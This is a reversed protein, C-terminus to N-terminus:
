DVMTSDNEIVKQQQAILQALKYSHEWNKEAVQTPNMRSHVHEPNYETEYGLDEDGIKEVMSGHQKTLGFMALFGSNKNRNGM